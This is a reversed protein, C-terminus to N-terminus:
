AAKERARPAANLDAMSARRDFYAGLAADHSVLLLAAGTRDTEAVLAAIFADRAPADLASTPEDALVLDPAGILARAAAVRQQQGVSLKAVSRGSRAEDGLGLRDLLDLAAAGPSGSREKARKARLRSFRCPLLVNEVLSLYALLNFMQFIVGIRDARIADRRGPSLREMRQGFVEVSGSAPTTVGAVLGLLTSKGSGSAGQLLVREGRAIELHAIDLAPPGGPWVYRLDSLRVAPAADAATSSSLTRM